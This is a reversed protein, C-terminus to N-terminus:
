GPCFKGGTPFHKPANLYISVKFPNLFESRKNLLSINYGFNVNPFPTISPGIQPTIYFDQEGKVKYYSFDIRGGYLFDHFEASVKPMFFTTGNVGLVEGGIAVGYSKRELTIGAGKYDLKMETVDLGRGYFVGAELGSAWQTVYGLKPTFEWSGLYEDKTRM